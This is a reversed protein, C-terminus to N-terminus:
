DDERWNNNLSSQAYPSLRTAKGARTMDSELELSAARDCYYSCVYGGYHNVKHSDRNTGYMYEDGKMPNKCYRCKAQLKPESM